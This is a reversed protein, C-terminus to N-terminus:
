YDHDPIYVDLEKSAYPHDAHVIDSISNIIPRCRPEADVDIKSKEFYEGKAVICKKWRKIWSSEFCHQFEASQIVDM